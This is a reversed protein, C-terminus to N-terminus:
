EYKRGDIRQVRSSLSIMQSELNLLRTEMDQIQHSIETIKVSLSRYGLKNVRLEDESVDEDFLKANAVEIKGELSEIKKSLDTNKKNLEKYGIKNIRLEDESVTMKVLSSMEPKKAVKAM